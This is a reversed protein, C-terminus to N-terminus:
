VQLIIEQSPTHINLSLNPFTVADMTHHHTYVDLSTYIYEHTYYSRMVKKNMTTTTRSSENATHAHSVSEHYRWNRRKGYCLVVEIRVQVFADDFFSFIM